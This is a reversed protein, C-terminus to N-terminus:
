GHGNYEVAYFGSARTPEVSFKDSSDSAVTALGIQKIEDFDISANYGRSYADMALIALMLDSNSKDTM